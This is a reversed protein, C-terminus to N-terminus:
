EVLLNTMFNQMMVRGEKYSHSTLIVESKDLVCIKNWWNVEVDILQSVRFIPAGCEESIGYYPTFFPLLWKFIFLYATLLIHM